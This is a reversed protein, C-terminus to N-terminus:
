RKKVVKLNSSLKEYNIHQNPEFKSMAVQKAKASFAGSAHYARKISVNLTTYRM